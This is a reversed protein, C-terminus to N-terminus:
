VDVLVECRWTPGDQGFRLGHRTVAKPVPGVPAVDAREAVAFEGVLGGEATREVAAQVPVADHADIVYIAEELLEVLLESEPAPDCAFAVLRQPEAARVEAFCSVLGRVAEALCDEVTPGWACVRVDATHSLLRHGSVAMSGEQEGNSM